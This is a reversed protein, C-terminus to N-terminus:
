GFITEVCMGVCTTLAIASGPTSAAALIAGPGGVAIGAGAVVCGVCGLFTWLGGGEVDAIVAVARDDGLSPIPPTVSQAPLGVALALSISLIITRTKKM